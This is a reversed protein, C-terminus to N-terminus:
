GLYFLLLLVFYLIQTIIKSGNRMACLGVAVAGDILVTSIIIGAWCGSLLVVRNQLLRIAQNQTQMNYCGTRAEREWNNAEGEWNNAEGLVPM